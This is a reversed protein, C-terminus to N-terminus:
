KRAVLFIHQNFLKTKRLIEASSKRLIPSPITALLKESLLMTNLFALGYLEIKAANLNKNGAVLRRFRNPLVSFVKSFGANAAVNILERYTYERLHMGKTESCKFIRSVDHPGTYTHPTNFVYIGGSRLIKRASTFHTFIDDPHFHEIVQGSIVADYSSVPEFEDLHIGDTTGWTLNPTDRAQKGREQTIETAKCTFGLGSLYRVLKGEGSGIEYISKPPTGLVLLWCAYDEDVELPDIDADHETLWSLEAYLESYCSIFELRRTEPTSALLRATLRKELDWHRLIMEETIEADPPLNYNDKYRRILEQGRPEM